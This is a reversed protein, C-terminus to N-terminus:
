NGSIEIIVIESRTGIRVPPGWTGYGSSVYFHTNGIKGYGYAIEYIKKVILNFPWFQGNHTHGSFQFDVAHRAVDRLHYPQHDIVMVFKSTDVDSLLQDITKRKHHGFRNAQLDDRGIIIITDNVQYVTDRLYKLSLTSIYKEAKEIGGIYEHNGPVAYVGLRAKLNRLPAGIDYKFTPELMEDLLDGALLIIDPKQNNVKEVLRNLKHRGVLMGLHLDSVGVIKLPGKGTYKESVIKVTTEKPIFTNIYGAAVLGIVLISISFFTFTKLRIYEMSGPEPLFNGFWNIFRIIDILFVALLAYLIIVIWFSSLWIFPIYVINFTHSLFRLIIFSLGITIFVISFILWYKDNFPWAQRARIWVYYHGLLYITTFIGIFIWFGTNRM